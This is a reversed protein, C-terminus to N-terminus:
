VAEGLAESLTGPPGLYDLQRQHPIFMKTTESPGTM